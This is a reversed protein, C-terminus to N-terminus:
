VYLPAGDKIYLVSEFIRNRPDTVRWYRIKGIVTIFETYEESLNNVNQTKLIQAISWVGNETINIDMTYNDTILMPANISIVNNVFSMQNNHVNGDRDIVMYRSKGFQGLSPVNYFGHISIQRDARKWQEILHMQSQRVASIDPIEGTTVRSELLKLRSNVDDHDDRLGGQRTVLDNIKEDQIIELDNLKEIVMNLVMESHGFYGPQYTGPILSNVKDLISSYRSKSKLYRIQGFRPIEILVFASNGRDNKNLYMVYVTSYTNTAYNRIGILGSDYTSLTSFLLATTTESNEIIVWINEAEQKTMIILLTESNPLKFGFQNFSAETIPVISSVSLNLCRILTEVSITFNVYTLEGKEIWGSKLNDDQTESDLFYIRGDRGRPSSAEDIIEQTNGFLLYPLNSKTPPTQINSTDWDVIVDFSNSFRFPLLDLIYEM